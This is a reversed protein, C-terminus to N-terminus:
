KICEKLSHFQLITLKLKKRREKSIPSCKHQKRKRLLEQVTSSLNREYKQKNRKRPTERKVEEKM